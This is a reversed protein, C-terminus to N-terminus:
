INQSPHSSKGLERYTCTSITRTCTRVEIELRMVQSSQSLGNSFVRTADIRCFLRTFDRCSSGSVFNVAVLIIHHPFTSAACTFIRMSAGNDTTEAVETWLGAEFSESYLSATVRRQFCPYSISSVLTMPLWQFNAKHLSTSLFKILLIDRM